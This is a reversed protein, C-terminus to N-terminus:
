DNEILDCHYWDVFLLQFTKNIQLIENKSNENWQAICLEIVTEHLLTGFYTTHDTKLAFSNALVKKNTLVQGVSNCKLLTKLENFNINLNPSGVIERVHCKKFLTYAESKKSHNTWIDQIANFEEQVKLYSTTNLFEHQRYDDELIFIDFETEKNKEKL